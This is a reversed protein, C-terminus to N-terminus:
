TLLGAAGQVKTYWAFAQPYEYGIDAYMTGLLTYQGNIFQNGTVGQRFQIAGYTAMIGYQWIGYFADSLDTATGKTLNNRLNTTAVVRRGAWQDPGDDTFKKLIDVYPGEQDGTTIASARLSRARSLAAPRMIWAGQGADMSFSREAILTPIQDGYQPLLVNGNAQIGAATPYDTVIDIIAGTYASSTLGAPIETTGTGYFAYQDVKLGLTRGLDANTLADVQGSTFLSAEENIVTYGAIKKAQLVMQNTQIDSQSPTQGEGVAQATTASTIRPRVMRGQPPLAVTKAGAALFAAQPRIFPIVEGQVPPAVLSGGYQDFYASQAAAKTVIGKRVLYSIEDPDHYEMAKSANMVAKMQRGAKSEVVDDPLLSFCIPYWFSGGPAGQAIGGAAMMSKRFEDMLGHEYKARSPDANTLVNSAFRTISFRKSDEYVPGTTVWGPGTALAGKNVRTAEGIKENIEAAQRELEKVREETVAAM